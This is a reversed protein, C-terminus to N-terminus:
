NNSQTTIISYPPVAKTSLTQQKKYM